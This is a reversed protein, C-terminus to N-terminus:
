LTLCFDNIIAGPLSYSDTSRREYTCNSLLLSCERTLAHLHTGFMRYLSDDFRMVEIPQVIEGQEVWFAAFRTMGTIRGAYKDSYNLYWLNNIYLGNNLAKLVEASPLNAGSMRLAHLIEDNDAGNDAQQYEEASRPSVLAQRFNGQQVLCVSEPKHFGEPQFDPGFGSATDERWEIRSDLSLEDRWLRELPSHGSRLSDLGFGDSILEFIDVLAAPALYARYHGPQLRKAPRKLQQLQQRGTDLIRSFEASDWHEGAYSQKVAKDTSHYLSWDLNFSQRQHWNRQGLSNAFGCYIPGASYIGVFDLVQVQSLVEDMLQPAAPLTEASIAESNYPQQAYRFYPDDPLADLRERLQQLAQKLLSRDAETQRSLSLEFVAHKAGRVLRLSLDAQQVHGAQRIKGHNCRVFDSDEARLYCLSVEDPHLQTEIYDALQYFYSQM